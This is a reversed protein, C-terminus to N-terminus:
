GAACSLANPRELILSRVDFKSLYNSSQRSFASCAHHATQRAGVELRRMHAQQAAKEQEKIRQKYAIQAEM